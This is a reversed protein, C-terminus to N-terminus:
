KLSFLTETDEMCGRKEAIIEDDSVSVRFKQAFKM